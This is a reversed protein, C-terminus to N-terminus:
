NPVSCERCGRSDGTVLLVSDKRIGYGQTDGQDALTQTPNPPSYCWSCFDQSNIIVM